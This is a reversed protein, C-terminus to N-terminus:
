GWDLIYETNDKVVSINTDDDGLLNSDYDLNKKRLEPSSNKAPIM